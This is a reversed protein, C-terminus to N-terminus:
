VKEPALLCEPTDYKEAIERITEIYEDSPLHQYYALLRTIHERFREDGRKLFYMMDMIAYERMSSEPSEQLKM